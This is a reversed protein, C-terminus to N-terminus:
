QGATEINMAAGFTAGIGEQKHGNNDRSQSYGANVNLGNRFTHSIGIQNTEQKNGFNDRTQSHQVDFNVGGPSTYSGGVSDTHQKYVSGVNTDQMGGRIQFNSGDQNATSYAGHFARTEAGGPNASSHAGLTFSNREGQYAVSGGLNHDNHSNFHGASQPAFNWQCETIPALLFLLATVLTTALTYAAM